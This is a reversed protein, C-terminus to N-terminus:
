NLAAFEASEIKLSWSQERDTLEEFRDVAKRSNGVAFENGMLEMGLAICGHLQRSWNASHILIYTRDPVDELSWTWGFKPSQRWKLDYTGQPICSIFPQNDLWPRELTWFVEGDFRIIGMTSTPSHAWRSLVIETM